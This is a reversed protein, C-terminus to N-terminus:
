PSGRREEAESNGEASLWCFSLHDEKMVWITNVERFINRRQEPHSTILNYFFLQMNNLELYRTKSLVIAHGTGNMSAEPLVPNLHM